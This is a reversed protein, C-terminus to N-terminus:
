YQLLYITGTALRWSINSCQMRMNGGDREEGGEGIEGARIFMVRNRAETRTAAFNWKTQPNGFERQHPRRGKDPWTAGPFTKTNPKAGRPWCSIKTEATHAQLQYATKVVQDKAM